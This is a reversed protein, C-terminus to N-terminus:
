NNRARDGWAFTDKQSDPIKSDGWYWEDYVCRVYTESTSSSEAVSFNSTGNSVSIQGSAIWYSSSTGDTSNGFLRPILNKATLEMMFKVEAYTPIRWRGAPRGNEQYAACRKEANEKTVKPSAGRSSAVVFIPAIFNKYSSIEYTKYYNLLSNTKDNSLGWIGNSLELRYASSSLGTISTTNSERPDGIIYDSNSTDFRTVNIVYNNYNTNNPSKTVKYWTNDITSQDNNVFVYERGPSEKAEIYISPYQTITVTQSMSTDDSHQITFTLTFPGVAESIYHTTTTTTTGGPRGGTSTTTTTQYYNQGFEGDSIQRIPRLDHNFVIKLNDQDLQLSYIKNSGNTTDYQGNEFTKQGTQNKGIAGTIEVSVEEPTGNDTKYNYYSLTADVIQCDHSTRFPITLSTTNNMVYEDKEVQLYRLQDLSIDMQETSWDMIMYDLEEEIDEPEELNLSGLKSVNVNVVYHKNRLLMDHNGSNDNATKHNVPVQYYYNTQKNNDGKVRWPVCVVMFSRNENTVQGQWNNPYSYFPKELSYTFEGENQLFSVNKGSAFTKETKFGEAKPDTDIASKLVGNCFYAFMDAIVPVYTYEVGNEVVTVESEVNLNLTIKAASRALEIEGSASNAVSGQTVNGSLGDMVFYPQNDGGIYDFNSGVIVKKLNSVTKPTVSELNSKETESLNAIAYVCFDTRNEKNLKSLPVNVQLTKITTANLDAKYEQFIPEAKDKNLESAAGDYFFLYVNDLKFENFPDEKSTEPRGDALTRTGGSLNLIFMGEEPMGPTNNGPIDDGACGPCLLPLLALVPFIYKSFYRKM